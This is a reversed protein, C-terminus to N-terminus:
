AWAALPEEAGGVGESWDSDFVQDPAPSAVV